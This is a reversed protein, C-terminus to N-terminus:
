PIELTYGGPTTVRLVANKDSSTKLEFFKPNREQKNVVSLPKEFSKCWNYFKKEDISNQRAFDAKSLSSEKWQEYFKKQTTRPTFKM